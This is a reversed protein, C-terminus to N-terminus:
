PSIPKRITAPPQSRSRRAPRPLSAKAAALTRNGEVAEALVSDLASSGFLKWWSGSIKEGLVFRQDAGAGGASLVSPMPNPTYGTETPAPPAKYGPILGCGALFAAGALALISRLM